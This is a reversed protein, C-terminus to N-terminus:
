SAAEGSSPTEGPLFDYAQALRVYAAQRVVHFYDSSFAWMVVTVVWWWHLFDETQYTVFPLPCSSFALSWVILGVKVVGMVLNIEILKGRLPGTKWASRVAAIPGIGNAMALLPALRFIWSTSAWLLFLALTVLLALAFGPVYGPYDGAAQPVQVFHIWLAALAVLWVSLLAAFAAVRIAAFVALVLKGGRLALEFRRLLFGRGVSSILGWLSALALVAIAHSVDHPSDFGIIFAGHTLLTLQTQLRQLVEGAAPSSLHVDMGLSGLLVPAAALLLPLWAIARTIVEIGTLGPRKWVESM